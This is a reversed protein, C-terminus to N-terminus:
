SRRTFLFIATASLMVGLLVLMWGSLTPVDVGPGPGPGPTPPPAIIATSNLRFVHDSGEMSGLVTGPFAVRTMGTPEAHMPPIPFRLIGGGNLGTSTFTSPLITAMVPADTLNTPTGTSTTPAVTATTPTVTTSTPTAASATILSIHGAVPSETFFAQLSAGTGSSAIAHPATLGMKTYEDIVNSTPNLRGLQNSASETFWINGDADRAISNPTGFPCCPTFNGAGPVNWRTLENTTPNLRLIQDPQGGGAAGTAYVFAGDIVLNYPRSGTAWKKVANTPPDLEIIEGATAFNGLYVRGNAPNVRIGMASSAGVDWRRFNDSGRFNMYPSFTSGGNVASWTDGGGFSGPPAVAGRNIDGAFQFGGTIGYHKFVNTTPNWFLMGCNGGEGNEMSTFMAPAGVHSTLGDVDETTEHPDDGNIIPNAGINWTIIDATQGFLQDGNGGFLLGLTVIGLAAGFRAVKRPCSTEVKSTKQEKM